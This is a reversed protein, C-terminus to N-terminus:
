PSLLAPIQLFFFYLLGHCKSPQTDTPRGPLSLQHFQQYKRPSRPLYLIMLPMTRLSMLSHIVQSKGRRHLSWILYKIEEKVLRDTSLIYCPRHPRSSGQTLSDPNTSAKHVTQTHDNDWTISRKVGHLHFRISTFEESAVTLTLHPLVCLVGLRPWICLLCTCM